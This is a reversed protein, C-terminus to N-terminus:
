NTPKSKAKQTRSIPFIHPQLEAPADPIRRIIRFNLALGNDLMKDWEDETMRHRIGSQKAEIELTM